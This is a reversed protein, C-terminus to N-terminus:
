DPLAKNLEFEQLMTSPETLWLSLMRMFDHWYEALSEVCYLEPHGDMALYLREQGNLMKNTIAMDFDEIPGASITTKKLHCGEFFEPLPFPIWNVVPGFLINNFPEFDDLVFRIQEFYSKQHPRMEAFRAALLQVIETLNETGQAALRLPLINMTLCPTRMASTGLRALVPIGFCLQQDNQQLAMYGMFVAMVILASPLKLEAALANLQQQQPLPIVAEFRYGQTFPDNLRRKLRKKPALAGSYNQKWFNLDVEAQASQIYNQEEPIYKDYHEFAKNQLATNNKLSQYYDIFRSILLGYAYGDLAMHHARFFLGYRQKALHVFTYDYLHGIMPDFAPVVQQELWNNLEQENYHSLDIFGAAQVAVDDKRYFQGDQEVVRWHLAKAEKFTLFVAQHFIERLLPGDIVLWEATHFPLSGHYHHGLYMSQQARTLPQLTSIEQM